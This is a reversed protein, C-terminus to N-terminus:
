AEAQGVINRIFGNFATITSTTATTQQQQEGLVHWDVLVELGLLRLL